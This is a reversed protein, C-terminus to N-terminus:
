IKKTLGAKAMSTRRCVSPPAITWIHMGKRLHSQRVVEEVSIVTNARGHREGANTAGIM